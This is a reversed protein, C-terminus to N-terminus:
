FLKSQTRPSDETHFETDCGFGTIRTLSDRRRGGDSDTDSCFTLRYQAVARWFYTLSITLIERSILSTKSCGQGLKKM